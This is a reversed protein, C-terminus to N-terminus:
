DKAGRYGSMQEKGIFYCQDFSGIDGTYVPVYNYILAADEEAKNPFTHHSQRAENVMFNAMYLSITVADKSHNMHEKVSWEFINKEPHWQVGYFPYKIAEMVSIFELGKEDVNTSIVQYFNSLKSNKTYNKPTLGWSHFNFTVNQNALIDIVDDPAKKFMRSSKFDKQFHLPYVVNTAKTAALVNQGATLYSLLQFGLCTGWIPFYDGKDNAQIALDYLIRGAKGYGSTEIYQSGGPFLVGNLSSFLNAYYADTQNVPIPVVRAGASELFKVYSAAIYSPGHKAMEDYCTEAVVGIIPRNNVQSGDIALFLSIALLIIVPFPRIANVMNQNNM